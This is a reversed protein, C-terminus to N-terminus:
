AIERRKNREIQDIHFNKLHYSTLLQTIALPNSIQEQEGDYYKGIFDEPMAIDPLYDWIIKMVKRATQKAIDIKIDLIDVPMGNDRDLHVSISYQDTTIQNELLHSFDPHKISPRLILNANLQAGAKEVSDEPWYFHVVVDAFNRQPHIFRKSVEERRKLAERVQDPSYGRKKTDRAIKWAIRLEEDPDLYVKVDFTNRLKRTYFGLLGEIIVFEKPEIYEPPDFDGTSHNYIPKLIAEGRSLSLIHQEMIDIYNCDPHLASISKQIRQARNYRHYDDICINTVRDPGLVDEIGKTFTTKGTGSDGVIGLLIPRTNQM